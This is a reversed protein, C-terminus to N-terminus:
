KGGDGKTRYKAPTIQTYKKFSRNFYYEDSFGTQASIQSLPLHTTSLLQKAQELRITNLYAFITSGTRKKFIRNLYDFNMSLIRAIDESTIKQAYNTHLYNLLQNTKDYMSSSINMQAHNFAGDMWSQSISRFIDMLRCSVATKYYPQRNQTYQLAEQMNQVIRHFVSIDEIHFQKPLVLSFDTYLRESLPSENYNLHLLRQIYEKTWESTPNHVASAAFSSFHAYFYTCGAAKYGEHEKKAELLIIDGQRLHYENEEERLYMDGSSLIFLIYENTNRRFHKWNNATTHQGLYTIHPLAATNLLFFTNMMYDEDKAYYKCITVCLYPSCLLDSFYM